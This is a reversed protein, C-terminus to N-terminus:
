GYRTKFYHCGASEPDALCSSRYYPVLDPDIFDHDVMYDIQSTELSGGEFSMVGNGVLIGKLNVAKGIQIFNYVDIFEALDPIYKGAYSEGAIWFPNDSYEPYKVFFDLLADFNDIVTTPDSYTYNQNRNTSYGVGAPSEIFLLHSKQHWSYPNEILSEGKKYHM